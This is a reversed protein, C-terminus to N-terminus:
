RFAELLEKQSSSFSRGQKGYENRIGNLIHSMKVPSEEAKALLAGHLAANKVSAGSLEFAQALLKADVEASVPTEKPFISKWLEERLQADPMPFHVMYSIRRRFADDFNQLLNTALISVGMYQEIRQLLYATEANSYRDQADSVESRKAFVADAEDFLLICDCKDAEDFIRGINKQTEGIYKSILQSLDVRYLPMGLENALVQAAMTKGTGPAGYFLVSMGNGYSFKHGFGWQDMVEGRVAAMRSIQRLQEFQSQPLKLEDFTRDAPLLHLSGSSFPVPMSETRATGTELEARVNEMYRVFAGMPLQRGTLQNRLIGRPLKELSNGLIAEAARKRCARDPKPIRRLRVVAGPDEHLPRDEEKIVGYFRFVSSMRKLLRERNEKGIRVCPFAGYLQVCLMCENLNRATDPYYRDDLLLLPVDMRACLQEMYFQRGSGSEGSICLIQPQRSEEAQRFIEEGEPLLADLGYSPAPVPFILEMGEPLTPMEGELWSCLVPSLTVYGDTRQIWVPFKEPQEEKWIGLCLRAFEEQRMAQGWISALSWLVGALVQQTKGMELIRVAEAWPFLMGARLAEEAANEAMRLFMGASADMAQRNDLLEMATKKLKAGLAESHTM